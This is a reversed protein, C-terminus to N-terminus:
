LKYNHYLEDGPSDKSILILSRFPHEVNYVLNVNRTDPDIHDSSYQLLASLPTGSCVGIYYLLRRLDSRYIAWSSLSNNLYPIRSYM